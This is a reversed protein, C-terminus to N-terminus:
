ATVRVEQEQLEAYGDLMYGDRALQEMKTAAAVALEKTAYVKIVPHEDDIWTVTWVTAKSM